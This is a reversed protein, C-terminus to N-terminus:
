NQEVTIYGLIGSCCNGSDDFHIVAISAYFHITIDGQYSFCIKQSPSIMHLSDENSEQKISITGKRVLLTTSGLLIRIQAFPSLKYDDIEGYAKWICGTCGSIEQYDDTSSIVPFILM